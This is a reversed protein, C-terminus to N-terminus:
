TVTDFGIFYAKHSYEARLDLRHPIHTYYLACLWKKFKSVNPVTGNKAEIPSM